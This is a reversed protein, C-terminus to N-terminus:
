TFKALSIVYMDKRKCLLIYGGYRVNRANARRRLSTHPLAPFTPKDCNAVATLKGKDVDRQNDVLHKM